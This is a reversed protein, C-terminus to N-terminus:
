CDWIKREDRSDNHNDMSDDATHTHIIWKHTHKYKHTISLNINQNFIPPFTTHAFHVTSTKAEGWSDPLLTPKEEKERRKKHELEKTSKSSSSSYTIVTSFTRLHQLSKRIFTSAKGHARISRSTLIERRFTAINGDNM